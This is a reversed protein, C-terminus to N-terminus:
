FVIQKIEMIAINHSYLEVDLFAAQLTYYAHHQLSDPHTLLQCLQPLMKRSHILGTSTLRASVRSWPKMIRLLFRVREKGGGTDGEDESKDTGSM